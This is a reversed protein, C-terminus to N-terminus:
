SAAAFSWSCRLISARLARMLALAASANSGQDGNRQILSLILFLTLSHILSLSHSFLSRGKIRVRETRQNRPLLQLINLAAEFVADRGQEAALTLKSHTWAHTHRTHTTTHNHSLVKKEKKGREEEEGEERASESVKKPQLEFHLLALAQLSLYGEDFLLDAADAILEGQFRQALTLDGLTSVLQLSTERLQLSLQM